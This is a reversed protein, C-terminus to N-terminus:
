EGGAEEGGGDRSTASSFSPRAAPLGANTVAAPTRSCRLRVGDWRRWLKESWGSRRGRTTPRWWRKSTTSSRPTNRTACTRAPAKATPRPAATFRARRGEAPRRRRRPCRCSRQSSRRRVCPSRRAPAWRRWRRSRTRSSSLGILPELSTGNRFTRATTLYM